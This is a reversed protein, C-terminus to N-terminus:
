SRSSTSIRWSVDSTSSCSEPHRCACCLHGLGKYFRHPLVDLTFWQFHFLSPLDKYFILRTLVDVETGQDKPTPGHRSFSALRPGCVRHPGPTNLHLTGRLLQTASSAPAAPAVRWWRCPHNGGESNITPDLQTGQLEVVQPCLSLGSVCQFVM